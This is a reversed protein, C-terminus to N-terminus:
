VMYASACRQDMMRLTRLKVCSGARLGSTSCINGESSPGRKRQGLISPSSTSTTPITISRGRGRICTPPYPSNHPLPAHQIQATIPTSGAPTATPPWVPEPISCLSHSPQKAVPTIPIPIGASRAPMPIQHPPTHSIQIPGVYCNKGWALQEHVWFAAPFPARVDDPDLNLPQNHFEALQPSMSINVFVYQRRMPQPITVVRVFWLHDNFSKHHNMCM